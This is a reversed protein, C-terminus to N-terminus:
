LFLFPETNLATKIIEIEADQDDFYKTLYRYVGDIMIAEIHHGPDIISLGIASADQAQHFTVDGTIYTDAGSSKAKLYYKEGSGGLIAVKKIKQDMPGTVRLGSLGFEEKIQLALEKLTTREELTGIRGLGYVEGQNTLEIIDYAPVEYPHVKILQRVAKKLLSEPVLYQIKVEEVFEKVGQNGIHPSAEEMPTFTGIGKSRFSGEKYEGMQGVGIKILAQDVVELSSEPVYAHLKFLKEEKEPILVKTNKLNIAEALLDNVGGRAVDLNTHASYVTIDHKILLEIVKGIPESLNIRKLSKFLLPHHSIIFNAEKEIAEEVVAKTVDLTVLVKNVVMSLNGVQLGVNDWDSALHKPAWEEFIEVVKGVTIPKTM